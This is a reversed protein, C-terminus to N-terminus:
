VHYFLIMNHLKQRITSRDALMRLTTKKAHTATRINTYITSLSKIMQIEHLDECVDMDIIPHSPQFLQELSSVFTQLVIRVIKDKFNKKGMFGCQIEVKFVRETYKLIKHVGYSPFLLGGRNIFSTFAAYQNIDVLREKSNSDQSTLLINHCHECTLKKLLKRIIFGGIYYIINDQLSSLAIDDVLSMIKQIDSNDDDTSDNTNHLMSRRSTRYEFVSLIESTDGICNANISPQVNNRFLLKRLAWKFQLANPNNNWGGRSRICSFFLEIHDQSCKYTLFYSLPLTSNTLLDSALNTLSKMNILFGLAFTKRRHNLINSNDTGARLQQIYRESELFVTQYYQMNHLRMPSKFGTAFPNRSNMIDFLRDFIRIFETTAESNSFKTYGNLRLFDIADAVSSSLTQVALAVNMKKQSFNVHMNSLSTAMKLDEKEQLEHLEKIFDFLIQGKPSILPIEAFANRCLKQLHDADIICHVRIDCLPHTFYTLM